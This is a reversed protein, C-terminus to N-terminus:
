TAILIVFYTTVNKPWFLNVLNGLHRLSILTITLNLHNKLELNKIFKQQIHIICNRQKNFTNSGRLMKSPPKSVSQDTVLTM